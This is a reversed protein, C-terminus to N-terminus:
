ELDLKANCHLLLIRLANVNSSKFIDQCIIHYEILRISKKGMKTLKQTESM